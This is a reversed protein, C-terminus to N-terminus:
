LALIFFAYKMTVMTTANNRDAHEEMADVGVGMGVTTSSVPDGALVWVLSAFETVAEANM